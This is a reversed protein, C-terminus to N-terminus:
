TCKHLISASRHLIGAYKNVRYTSRDLVWGTVLNEVLDVRQYFHTCNNLIGACRYHMEGVCGDCWKTIKDSKPRCGDGRGGCDFVQIGIRKVRIGICKNRM